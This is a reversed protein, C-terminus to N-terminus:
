GGAEAQAETQAGAHSEQLYASVVENEAAAARELDKQTASPDKIVANTAEVAAALDGITTPM